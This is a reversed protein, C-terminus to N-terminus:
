CLMFKCPSNAVKKILFKSNLHTLVCCGKKNLIQFGHCVINLFNKFINRLIDHTGIKKLFFTTANFCLIKSQLNDSYFDDCM